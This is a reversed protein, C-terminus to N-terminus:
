AGARASLDTDLAMGSVLIGGTSYLSELHEPYQRVLISLEIAGAALALDCCIEKALPEDPM